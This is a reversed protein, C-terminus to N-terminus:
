RADRDRTVKTFTVYWRGENNLACWADWVDRHPGNEVVFQCEEFTAYTMRAKSGALAPSGAVVLGLVAACVIEGAILKNMM